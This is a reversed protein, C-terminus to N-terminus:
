EIWCENCVPIGEIDWHEQKSIFKGCLCRLVKINPDDIIDEVKVLDDDKHNGWVVDSIGDASWIAYRLKLPKKKVIISGKIPYTVKNGISNLPVFALGIVDKGSKTRYEKNIDIM